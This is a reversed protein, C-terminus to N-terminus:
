QTSEGRLKALVQKSADDMGEDSVSVLKWLQQDPLDLLSNLAILEAESLQELAHAVFDVFLLDLELMGRRCRWRLRGIAVEDGCLPPKTM